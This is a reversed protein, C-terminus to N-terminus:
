YMKNLQMLRDKEELSRCLVSISAGNKLAKNLECSIDGLVYCSKHVVMLCDKCCFAQNVVGYLVENCHDCLTGKAVTKEYFLHNNFEYANESDDVEYETITSKKAKEIECKLQAIKKESGTKQAMADEYTNGDLVSILSDLGKLIKLEKELDAEMAKLSRRMGSTSSNKSAEGILFIKICLARKKYNLHHMENNKLERIYINRLPYELRGDSQIEGGCASLKGKLNENLIKHDLGGVMKLMCDEISLSIEKNNSVNLVTYTAIKNNLSMNKITHKLGRIEEELIRKGAIEQEIKQQYERIETRKIRLQKKLDEIGSAEIDKAGILARNEKGLAENEKYFWYVLKKIKKLTEEFNARSVLKKLDEIEEKIIIEQNRSTKHIGKEIQDLVETKSQIDSKIEALKKNSKNINNEVDILEDKSVVLQEMANKLMTNYEAVLKEKNEKDKVLENIQNELEKLKAVEKEYKAKDFHQIDSQVATCNGGHVKLIPNSKACDEFCVTTDNQPKRGRNFAEVIKDAHLPDYTFGIFDKYGCDIQRDEPVFETDVFNSIDTKEQINPIYPPTIEKIKMWDIGKFFPHMKVDEIKIRDERFCLLKKILDNLENSLKNCLSYELTNIKNYTEHLSESWFPTVGYFMEYIIVGIAWMDVEPGYTVTNGVSILADPSIYDPTGVSLFSTAKGNVMQACSGFDGLKIHGDADIIINDPKLDRHLWGMKHMVDVAMFLEASYFRIVEEPVANQKSLLCMLDGGPIFDMFYYLFKEDQLCEHCKIIWESDIETMIQKENMFFNTNPNKKVINKSVRKLAYIKNNKEALFVEGYGGKALTKLIKYTSPKTKGKYIHAFQQSGMAEAADIVFNPDIRDVM